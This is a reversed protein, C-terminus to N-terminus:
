SFVEALVEPSKLNNLGPFHISYYRLLGELIRCRQTGNFRFAHMNALTMRSLLPLKAAEEPALSDRHGPPLLSMAGGRMDFWAGPRWASIDPRVGAYDLFNILFAIHFNATGKQRRDFQELASATHDWLRADPPSERLYANLFEALFFSVASKAPDLYLERWQRMFAVEGLFQLERGPHFNVDTEIMSLPALRANRMRASRGKGASALLAVRGHTRTFLIVVKHRDSHPTQGLVIAQLREIAM